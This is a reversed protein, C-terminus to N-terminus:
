WVQRIEAESNSELKMADTPNIRSLGRVRFPDNDMVSKTDSGHKKKV